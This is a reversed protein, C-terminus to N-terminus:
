DLLNTIMFMSNVPHLQFAWEGESFPLVSGQTTASAMPTGPVPEACHIRRKMGVSVQSALPTQLPLEMTEFYCAKRFGPPRGPTWWPIEMNSGAGQRLSQRHGRNKIRCFHGKELAIKVKLGLAIWPCKEEKYKKWFSFSFSFLTLLILFFLTHFHSSHRSSSLPIRSLKLSHDTSGVSNM